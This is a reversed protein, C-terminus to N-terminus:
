KVLNALLGAGVALGFIVITAVSAKTWGAKDARFRIVILLLLAAMPVLLLAGCGVSFIFGLGPLLTGALFGLGMAVVKKLLVKDNPEDSLYEAGAMSVTSAGGVALLAVLITRVSAQVMLLGVILGTAGNLGDILGFLSKERYQKIAM